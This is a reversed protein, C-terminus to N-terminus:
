MCFTRLVMMEARKNALVRVDIEQLWEQKKDETEVAMVVVGHEQQLAFCLESPIGLPDKDPADLVDVVDKM